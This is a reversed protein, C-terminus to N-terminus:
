LIPLAYVWSSGSFIPGVVKQTKELGFDVKKEERLEAGKFGFGQGKRERGGGVGWFNGGDLCENGKGHGWGGGWWAVGSGREGDGFGYVTRM